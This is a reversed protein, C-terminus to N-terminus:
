KRTAARPLRATLETPAPENPHLRFWEDLARNTAALDDDAGNHAQMEAILSEAMVFLWGITPVPPSTKSRNRATEWNRTVYEFYRKVVAEGYKQALQSCLGAEKGPRKVPNKTSGHVTWWSGVTSEPFHEAMVGRWVKELRGVSGPPAHNVAGQGNLNEMAQARKRVKEQKADNKARQVKSGQGARKAVEALAKLEELTMGTERELAELKELADSAKTTETTSEERLPPVLMLLSLEAQRPAPPTSLGEAVQEPEASWKLGNQSKHVNALTQDSLDTLDSFGDPRRSLSASALHPDSVRVASSLSALAPAPQLQPRSAATAFSNLNEKEIRKEPERNIHASLPVGGTSKDACGRHEKRCVGQAEIPVGGEKEQDPRPKKVGRNPYKSPVKFFKQSLDARDDQSKLDLSKALKSLEDIKDDGWYHEREAEGDMYRYGLEYLLEGGEDTTSKLRKLFGMEELRKIHRNTNTRNLGVHGGIVRQRIQAVIRKRAPHNERPDARWVYRRVAKFVALTKDPLVRELCLDVADQREKIFPVVDKRREDLM